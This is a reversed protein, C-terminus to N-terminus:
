RSVSDTDFEQENGDDFSGTLASSLRAVLLAPSRERGGAAIEDLAVRRAMWDLVGGMAGTTGNMAM